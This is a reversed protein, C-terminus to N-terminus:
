CNKLYIEFEYEAHVTNIIIAECSLYPVCGAIKERKEFLLIYLGVHDSNFHMFRGDKFMTIERGEESRSSCLCMQINPCPTRESHYYRQM